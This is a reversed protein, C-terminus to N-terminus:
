QNYLRALLKVLIVRQDRYACNVSVAKRSCTFGFKEEKAGGRGLM